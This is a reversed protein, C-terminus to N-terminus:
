GSWVLGSWVLVAWDLGTWAPLLENRSYTANNTIVIVTIATITLIIATIATATLGIFIDSNGNNVCM